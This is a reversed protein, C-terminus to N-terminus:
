ANTVLGAQSVCVSQSDQDMPSVIQMSLALLMSSKAPTEGRDRVGGKLVMLLSARGSVM